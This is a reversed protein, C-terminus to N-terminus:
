SPCAAGTAVWADILAGMQKQTGPAPTRGTGPAWAWGVLSDLAIHEHIQVLTRGGNRAPDKIQACIQAPTKGQWAMSPPALHWHEHGPVRGPEFNRAQHCTGCRLSVSGFGDKGREVPPQHLRTTALEGQSPRNGVPHCNVCRPHMLVKSAEVFIAASRTAPDAIGAFSEPAALTTPLDAALTAGQVFLLLAAAAALLAPCSRTKM